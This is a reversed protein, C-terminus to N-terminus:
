LEEEGIGDERPKISKRDAELKSMNDQIADPSVKGSAIDALLQSEGKKYDRQQKTWQNVGEKCMSNYGSPTSAKKGYFEVPEWLKHYYCFVHTVEGAENKIFSKTASKTAMLEQLQPMLTSVKKNENAQLLEFLEAYVKKITM